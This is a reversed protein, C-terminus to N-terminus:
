PAPRRGARSVHLLEAVPDSSSRPAFDVPLDSGAVQQAAGPKGYLCGGLVLAFVGVLKLTNRSIITM